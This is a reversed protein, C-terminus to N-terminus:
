AVRNRRDNSGEPAHARRIRGWTQETAAAIDFDAKAPESRRVSRRTKSSSRWRSMNCPAKWPVWIFRPISGGRIRNQTYEQELHAKVAKMLVDFVRWKRQHHRSDLDALTVESM